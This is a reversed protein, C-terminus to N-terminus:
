TFPYVTDTFKGFNLRKYEYKDDKCYYYLSNNEDFLQMMQMSMGVPYTCSIKNVNYQAFMYDKKGSSLGSVNAAAVADLLIEGENYPYFLSKGSDKLNDLQTGVFAVITSNAKDNKIEYSCNFERENDKLSITQEVKIDKTEGFYYVNKMTVTGNGEYYSPQYEDADKSTLLTLKTLDDTTEWKDDTNDLYLSFNGSQSGNLFEYNGKKVSIIGGDKKQIQMSVLGNTVTFWHDNQIIEANYVTSNDNNEKEAKKGCGSVCNFM